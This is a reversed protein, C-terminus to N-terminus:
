YGYYYKRLKWKLMAFYMDMKAFLIYKRTNHKIKADYTEKFVRFNSNSIGGVRMHTLIKDVFAVRLKSKSRLLLEYDGCIKFDLDYLGVKEYLTRNHLSGVHAVNMFRSFSKWNWKNGITRLLIKQDDYLTTKSSIYDIENNEIIKNVYNEIADKTYMDDAGLFGIWEGKAIFLGKNWADYIGKDRESVWYDIQDDYKQIIDLTGDTSGGDIVIYEINEYTQNIVSQITEELHKKGNYIVTIISILPIDDYSKKFYGKTRLGGEGRRGEGEPLFLVTELANDPNNILELKEQILLRTTSFQNELSTM